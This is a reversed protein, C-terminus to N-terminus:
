LRRIRRTRRNLANCCDLVLPSKAAVLGWDVGEQPVLVVVIDQSELNKATLTASRM